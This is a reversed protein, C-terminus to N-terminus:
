RRLLERERPSEVWGDMTGTRRVDLTHVRTRGVSAYSSWPSQAAIRVSQGHDVVVRHHILAGVANAYRELTSLKPDADYRELKHVAQQSVGMRDAVDQQTLGADRRVRVLASRMERNERALVRARARVPNMATALTRVAKMM